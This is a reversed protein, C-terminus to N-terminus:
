EKVADRDSELLNIVNSPLTESLFGVVALLSDGLPV